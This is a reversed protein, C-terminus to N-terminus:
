CLPNRSCKNKRVFSFAYSPLWFSLSGEAVKVPLISINQYIIWATMISGLIAAWNCASFVYESKKAQDMVAKVANKAEKIM